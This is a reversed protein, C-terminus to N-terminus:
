KPEKLFQKIEEEFDWILAAGSALMGGFIRKAEKVDALLDRITEDFWPLIEGYIEDLSFLHDSNRYKELRDEIEPINSKM